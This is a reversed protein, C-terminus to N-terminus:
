VCIPSVSLAPCQLLQLLQVDFYPHKLVDISELKLQLVILACDIWAKAWMSARILPSFGTTKDTM